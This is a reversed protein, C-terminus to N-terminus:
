VPVPYQLDPIFPGGKKWGQEDDSVKEKGCLAGPPATDTTEIPFIIGERELADHHCDSV